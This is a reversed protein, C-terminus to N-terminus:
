VSIFVCSVLSDCMNECVGWVGWVQLRRVTIEGQQSTELNQVEIGSSSTADGTEPPFYAACKVAGREIVNTLM